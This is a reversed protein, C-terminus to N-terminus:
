AGSGGRERDDGVRTLRMAVQMAAGALEDNGPASSGLADLQERAEEWLAECQRADAEQAREHMRQVREVARAEIARADARARELRSRAERLAEKEAQRAAAETELVRRMRGAPGGDSRENM